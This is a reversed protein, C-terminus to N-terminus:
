LLRHKQYFVDSLPATNGFVLKWLRHNNYLSHKRNESTLENSLTEDNWVVVENDYKTTSIVKNLLIMIERSMQSHERLLIDIINQPIKGKYYKSLFSFGACIRPNIDHIIYNDEIYVGDVGFAGCYGYEKIAKNVIEKVSKFILQLNLNLKKVAIIGPAVIRSDSSRYGVLAVVPPYCCINANADCFGYVTIPLGKTLRAIRFGSCKQKLVIYIDSLYRQTIENVIFVQSSGMEIGDKLEGSVVCPSLEMCLEYFENQSLSEINVYLPEYGVQNSLLRTQEQKRELISWEYLRSGIVRRCMIRQVDTTSGAYIISQKDPDEINLRDMLLQSPHKLEMNLRYNYESIDGYYYTPAEIGVVDYAGANMFAEIMMKSRSPTGILLVKKSKVIDSLGNICCKYLEELEGLSNVDYM